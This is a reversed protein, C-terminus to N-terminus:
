PQQPKVKRINYKDFDSLRMSFEYMDNKLYVRRKEIKIVEGHATVFDEGRDTKILVPVLSKFIKPREM